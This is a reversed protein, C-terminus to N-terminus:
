NGWGHLLFSPTIPRLPQKPPNHSCLRTPAGMGPVGCICTQQRTRIEPTARPTGVLGGAAAPHLEARHAVPWGKRCVRGTLGSNTGQVLRERTPDKRTGPPPPGSKRHLHCCRAGPVTGATARHSVARLQSDRTPLHGATPARGGTAALLLSEQPELGLQAGKGGLPGQCTSGCRRAETEQLTPTISAGAGLLWLSFIVASYVLTM